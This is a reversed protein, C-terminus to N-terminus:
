RSSRLARFVPSVIAYIGNESRRESKGAINPKAEAAWDSSTRVSTTSRSTIMRMGTRGLGTRGQIPPSVPGWTCRPRSCGRLQAKPGPFPRSGATRGCAPKAGLQGLVARREIEVVAEVHGRLRFRTRGAPRSGNAFRAFSCSRVNEVGSGLAKASIEQCPKPFARRLRSKICRQAHRM